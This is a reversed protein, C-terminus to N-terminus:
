QLVTFSLRPRDRGQPVTQISGPLYVKALEQPEKVYLWTVGLLGGLM